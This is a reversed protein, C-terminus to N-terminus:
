GLRIADDLTPREGIRSAIHRYFRTGSNLPANPTMFVVGAWQTNDCHIWSRMDATTYQWAGNYLDTPWYTFNRGLFHVLADMISQTMWPQTRVGPYNGTSQTMVMVDNVPWRVRTPVIFTGSVTFEGHELVRQRMELPNQYFNDIIHLQATPTGYGIIGYM